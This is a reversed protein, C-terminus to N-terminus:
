LFKLGFLLYRNNKRRVARIFNDKQGGPHMFLGSNLKSSLSQLTVGNGRVTMFLKSPHYKNSSFSM